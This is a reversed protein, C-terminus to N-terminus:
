AIGQNQLKSSLLQYLFEFETHGKLSSPGHSVLSKATGMKRRVAPGQRNLYVRPGLLVMSDFTMLCIDSMLFSKRLASSSLHMDVLEFRGARPIFFRFLYLETLGPIWSDM